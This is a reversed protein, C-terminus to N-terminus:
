VISVLKLFHLLQTRPVSIKIRTLFAPKNEQVRDNTNGDFRILRIDAEGSKSLPNNLTQMKSLVVTSESWQRSMDKVMACQSSM